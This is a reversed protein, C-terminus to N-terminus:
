GVRTNHASLGDEREEVELREAQSNLNNIALNVHPLLESLGASQLHTSLRDLHNQHMNLQTRSSITEYRRCTAEITNRLKQALQEQLMM